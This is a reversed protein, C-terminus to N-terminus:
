SGIKSCKCNKVIFLNFIYFPNGVILVLYALFESSYKEHQVLILCYYKNAKRDELEGRKQWSARSHLESDLPHSAATPPIKQKQAFFTLM